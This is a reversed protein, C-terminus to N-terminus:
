QGLDDYVVYAYMLNVHYNKDVKWSPHGQASTLEWSYEQPWGGQLIYSFIM